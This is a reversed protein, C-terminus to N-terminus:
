KVERPQDDVVEFTCSLETKLVDLKEVLSRNRYSVEHRGVAERSLTQKRPDNLKDANVLDCTM